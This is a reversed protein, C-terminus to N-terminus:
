KKKNKTILKVLYTNYKTSIENTKQLAKIKKVDVIGALILSIVLFPVFMIVKDMPIELGFAKNVMEVIIGAFATYKVVQYVSNVLALGRNLFFDGHCYIDRIKRLINKIKKKKM